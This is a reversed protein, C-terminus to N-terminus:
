SHRAWGRPKTSPCCMKSSVDSPYRGTTSITDLEVPRTISDMVEQPWLLTTLWSALGLANGSIINKIESSFM